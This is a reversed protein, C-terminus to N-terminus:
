GGGVGGGGGGSPAGARADIGAAIVRAGQLNVVLGLCERGAAARVLAWDAACGHPIQGMDRLRLLDPRWRPWRWPQRFPSRRSLFGFRVLKSCSSARGEGGRRGRNTAPRWLRTSRHYQDRYSIWVSCVPPKSLELDGPFASAPTKLPDAASRAAHEAELRFDLERLLVRRHLEQCTPAGVRPGPGVPIAASDRGGGAADLRWDLRFLRKWAPGRSGQLWVPPRQAPAPRNGQALTAPALPQEELDRDRRL